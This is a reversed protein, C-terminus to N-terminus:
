GRRCSGHSYRVWGLLYGLSLQDHFGQLLASNPRLAGAVHFGVASACGQAVRNLDAAQALRKAIVPRGSLAAGNARDLGVNPM